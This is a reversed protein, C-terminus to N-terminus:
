INSYGRTCMSMVFQFIVMKLPYFLMFCSNRYGNKIAFQSNVLPYCGMRMPIDGWFRQITKRSFGMSLFGLSVASSWMIKEPWATPLQLCTGPLIPNKSNFLQFALNEIWSFFPQRKHSISPYHSLLPWSHFM